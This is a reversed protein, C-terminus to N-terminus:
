MCPLWRDLFGVAPALLSTLLAFSPESVFLLATLVILGIVQPCMRNASGPMKASAMAPFSSPFHPRKLCYTHASFIQFWNM